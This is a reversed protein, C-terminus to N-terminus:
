WENKLPLHSESKEVIWTLVEIAKNVDNRSYAEISRSMVRLLHNKFRNNVHEGEETLSLIVKRRDTDAVERRVLGQKVLTDVQRTATSAGLNLDEVINTMICNERSDIISLIFIGSGIRTDEHSVNAIHRTLNLLAFLFKNAIEEERNTLM